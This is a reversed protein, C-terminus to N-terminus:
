RRAGLAEVVDPLERLTSIKPYSADLDTWRGHRDLLIGHLGCEIAPEADFYPQDGVHACVSPSVGAREVAWSFIRPDPKEYGVVGSIAVVEFLERIELHRLLDDLWGEFNSIIGLGLGRSRLEELTPVADSFLDYNRLDSFAHYLAEPAGEDTIGVADLLAAYLSTWFRRSEHADTSFIWGDDAARRFRDGVARFGERMTEADVDHGRERLLGASLESWNPRPGLLTEGADFFVVEIM